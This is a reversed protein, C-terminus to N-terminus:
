RDTEGRCAAFVLVSLLVTASRRRLHQDFTSVNIVGVADQAARAASQAV